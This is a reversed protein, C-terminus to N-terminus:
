PSPACLRARPGPKITVEVRDVRTVIVAEGGKSRALQPVSAVEGPRSTTISLLGRFRITQGHRLVRVEPRRLPLCRTPETSRAGSLAIIHFTNAEDVETVPGAPDPIRGKAHQERLWGVSIYNRAFPRFYPPLDEIAEPRAILLVDRKTGELMPRSMTEVQALNAPVAILYMAAVPVLLFHWRRIVADTAIVVAPLLLALALHLYRSIEAFKPAFGAGRGLAVVSYFVLAGVAMALPTALRDRWAADRGQITLVVGLLVTITLAVTVVPYQTFQEVTARLGRALFRVFERPTPRSREPADQRGYWTWWSLFLVTLPVVQVLAPRIGRRIVVALGVITVMAVANGSSMLGAAGFVLALADRRDVPGDHDVLLLQALGFLLPGAFGIQFGWIIDGYAAGFLAFAGAAATALWPHVGARRVVVRLLVAISLHTTISLAMYPRYTNLGFIQFLGRYVVIPLTSWHENHPRMLDRFSGGDRNVIFEWDDKFFWQDRALLMYLPFAAAVIVV